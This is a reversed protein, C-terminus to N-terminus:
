PTVEKKPPADEYATLEVAGIRVRVFNMSGDHATSTTAGLSRLLALTAPSAGRVHGHVGVTIADDPLAAALTRLALALVEAQPTAPVTPRRM